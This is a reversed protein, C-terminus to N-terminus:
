LRAFINIFKATLKTATIFVSQVWKCQHIHTNILKHMCINILLYLYVSNIPQQHGHSSPLFIIFVVTIAKKKFQECCVRSCNFLNLILMIKYISVCSYVTYIHVRIHIWKYMYVYIYLQLSSYRENVQSNDDLLKRRRWDSLADDYLARNDAKGSCLKIQKIKWSLLYTM